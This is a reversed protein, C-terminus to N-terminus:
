HHSGTGVGRVRPSCSSTPVHSSEHVRTEKPFQLISHLSFISNICVSSESKRSYSWLTSWSPSCPLVPLWPPQTMMKSTATNKLMATPTYIIISVQAHSNEFALLCPQFPACSALLLPQEQLSRKRRAPSM